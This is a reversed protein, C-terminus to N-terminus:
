QAPRCLGAFEAQIRKAASAESESEDDDEDRGALKRLAALQKDTLPPGFSTSTGALGGVSTSATERRANGDRIGFARRMELAQQRTFGINTLSDIETVEGKMFVSKKWSKDNTHQYADLATQHSVGRKRLSKYLRSQMVDIATSM